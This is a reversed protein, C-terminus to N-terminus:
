LYGKSTAWAIVKERFEELTGDNVLRDTCDAPGFCVTPDTPIGPREVWVISSFFGSAQAADMEARARLGTVINGKKLALRVLFLTDQVRIRDLHDKWLQRNEHREDWAKQLTVGLFEAMFPLAHWSLSGANVLNRKGHLFDAATDKGSRGYGVFLINRGSM